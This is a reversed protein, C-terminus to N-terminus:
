SASKPHLLPRQQQAFLFFTERRFPVNQVCLYSPGLLDCRECESPMQTACFVHVCFFLVTQICAHSRAKVLVDTSKLPLTPILKAVHSMFLARLSLCYPSLRERERLCVLGCTLLLVAVVCYFCVCHHAASSM